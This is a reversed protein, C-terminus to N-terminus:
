VHTPTRFSDLVDRNVNVTMKPEPSLEAEIAERVRDQKPYRIERYGAVEDPCRLVRVAQAYGAETALNVRDLLGVYWDRFATERRHWGPLKRWWKMRSVLKLQWDQTTVRMRVRYKGVNFEPSTHHRYVIRDGNSVDVGYKVIDRQKKEFRTLLYSVYVEDKILMVKALGWVAAATATFGREASDRRYVKRVREIYQKAFAVDQYQMLDYIRLAFDYMQEAPLDRMQKMAGHVLKEFVM